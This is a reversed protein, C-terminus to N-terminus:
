AKLEMSETDISVDAFPVNALRVRQGFRPWAQVRM